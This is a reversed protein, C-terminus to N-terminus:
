GPAFVALALAGFAVAGLAAAGKWVSRFGHAEALGPALLAAWVLSGLAAGAMTPGSAGTAAGLAAGLLTLAVAVPAAALDTWFVAARTARWSGGGGLARAILGLLAAVAYLGVPRFAAGFVAQGALYFAREGELGRHLAPDVAAAGAAGLAALASALVAYGLLRGEGATAIEHAVGARPARWTRALRDVLGGPRAAAAGATM